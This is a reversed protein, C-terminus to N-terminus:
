FGLTRIFRAEAKHCLQCVSKHAPINNQATGVAVVLEIWNLLYKLRHFMNEQSPENNLRVHTEDPFGAQDSAVSLGSFVVGGKKGLKPFFRYM